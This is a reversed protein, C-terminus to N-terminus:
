YKIVKESKIFKGNEDWYSYILIGPSISGHEFDDMRIKNGLIDYIILKYNEPLEDTNGLNESEDDNKGASPDYFEECTPDDGDCDLIKIITSIRRPLQPHRYSIRLNQPYYNMDPLYNIRLDNGGDQRNGTMGRVSEFLSSNRGEIYWTGADFNLGSQGTLRVSFFLGGDYNEECVHNSPYQPSEVILDVCDAEPDVEVEGTPICIKDWARVITAFQESCRGYKIKALDVTAEMLDPFDPSEAMNPLAEYVLSMVETIDMPTIDNPVDGNVCLYFWHGITRGRVHEDTANIVAGNTFCANVNSASLLRDGIQWDLSFLRAKAYVGFMDSIGEILSQEAITIPNIFEDTLIAHGIEHAFVDYEVASSGDDLVGLGIWHGDRPDGIPDGYYAGGLGAATPHVGVHIEGLEIGFDNNFLRLIDVGRKFAQFTICSADQPEWELQTEPSTPIQNEDFSDGLDGIDNAPGANGFDDVFGTVESWDYVSLEFEANTLIDIGNETDNELVGFISCLFNSNYPKQLYGHLHTEYIFEGSHADVWGIAGGHDGMYKAQWVLEYSCDGARNNVIKLEPEEAQTIQGPLQDVVNNVNIFPSVDINIDEYINLSMRLIRDRCPDTPFNPRLFVDPDGINTFLSFGGGTVPIGQYLQTFRHYYGDFLHSKTMGKYEFTTYPDSSIADFFIDWGGIDEIAFPRFEIIGKSEVEDVYEFLPNSEDLNSFSLNRNFCEDNRLREVDTEQSFIKPQFFLLLAFTFFIIKKM